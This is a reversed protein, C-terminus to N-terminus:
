TQPSTPAKALFDELLSKSVEKLVDAQRLLSLKFDDKSNGLMDEAEKLKKLYDKWENHLNAVMGRMKASILVEYKDLTVFHELISPFEAEKIPAEETLREFLMVSKKMDEITKPVTLILESNVKMYEYIDPFIIAFM